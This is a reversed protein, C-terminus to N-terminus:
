LSLSLSVCIFFLSSFYPTITSLARRLGGVKKRAQKIKMWVRSASRRSCASSVSFFLFNLVLICSLSLIHMDYQLQQHKTLNNNIFCVRYCVTFESIQFVFGVCYFWEGPKVLASKAFNQIKKPM